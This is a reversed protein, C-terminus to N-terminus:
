RGTNTISRVPELYNACEEWLVGSLAHETDRTAFNIERGNIVRFSTEYACRLRKADRRLRRTCLSDGLFEEGDRLPPVRRRSLM